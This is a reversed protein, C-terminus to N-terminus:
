SFVDAMRAAQKRSRADKPFQRALLSWDRRGALHARLANTRDRFEDDIWWQLRRRFPAPNLVEVYSVETGGTDLPTLTVEVQGKHVIPDGPHTLDFHARFGRLTDVHELVIWETMPEKQWRVPYRAEFAGDERQVPGYETGPYWHRAAYEPHPLLAAWVAEPPAPTQFVRRRPRTRGMINGTLMPSYLLREVLFILAMFRVFGLFEMTDPLPALVSLVMDGAIGLTLIEVLARWRPLLFILAVFAPTYLILVALGVSVVTIWSTPDMAGDSLRGINSVWFLGFLIAWGSLFRRRQCWLRAWM